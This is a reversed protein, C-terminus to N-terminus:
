LVDGTIILAFKAFPQSSQRRRGIIRRHFFERRDFIHVAPKMDLRALDRNMNFIAIARRRAFAIFRGMEFPHGIRQDDIEVIPAFIEAPKGLAVLSRHQKM